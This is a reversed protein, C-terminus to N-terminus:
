AGPLPCIGGEVLRQIDQVGSTQSSLGPQRGLSAAPTFCDPPRSLGPAVHPSGQLKERYLLSDPRGGCCAFVGLQVGAKGRPRHAEELCCPGLSIRWFSWCVQLSGKPDFLVAGRFRVPQRGAEVGGRRMGRDHLGFVSVDCRVLGFVGPLKRGGPRQVRLEGQGEREGM